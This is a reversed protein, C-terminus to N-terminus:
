ALAANGASSSQGALARCPCGARRSVRRGALAFAGGAV